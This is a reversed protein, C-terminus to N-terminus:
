LLVNEPLEKTKHQGEELVRRFSSLQNELSPGRSHARLGCPEGLPAESAATRPRPWLLQMKLLTLKLHVM